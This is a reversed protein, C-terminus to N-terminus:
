LHYILKLYDQILVYIKISNFGAPLKDLAQKNITKKRDRYNNHNNNMMM